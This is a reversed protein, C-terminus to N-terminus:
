QSPFGVVNVDKFNSNFSEKMFRRAKWLTFSVSLCGCQQAVTSHTVALHIRTQVYTLNRLFYFPVPLDLAVHLLVLMFFFM